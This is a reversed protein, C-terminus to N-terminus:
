CLNAEKEKGKEKEKEKENRKGRGREIEKEKEKEIEIEIEIDNEKDNENDIQKMLPKTCFFNNINNLDFNFIIQNDLIEYGNEPGNPSSGPLLISIRLVKPKSDKCITSLLNRFQLRIKRNTPRCINEIQNKNKQEKNKNKNKKKNQNNNNKQDNNNINASNNNIKGKQFQIKLFQHLFNTTEINDFAEESSIKNDKKHYKAGILIFCNDGLPLIGDCRMSHSPFIYIQNKGNFISNHHKFTSNILMNLDQQAGSQNSENSYNQNRNQNKSFYQINITRELIWKPLKKQDKEKVQDFFPLESIKLGNFKMLQYFILWEFATGYNEQEMEWM